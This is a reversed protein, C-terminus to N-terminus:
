YFFIGLILRVIILAGVILWFGTWAVERVMALFGKGTEKTPGPVEGKQQSNELYEIMHDIQEENNSRQQGDSGYPSAYNRESASAYLSTIGILFGFVISLLHRFM